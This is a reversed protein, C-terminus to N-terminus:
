LRGLSHPPAITAFPQDIQSSKEAPRHGGEEPLSTLKALHNLDNAGDEGSMLFKEEM